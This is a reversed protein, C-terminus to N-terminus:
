KRYFFVGLTKPGCHCSVTCGAIGEYVNEFPALELIKEKVESIFEDEFGHSHTIFICSYDIDDRGSLREELYKMISKEVTGRYKKGVGMKGDKLEICPHLSLLNAGLAAVSSCRGGRRLYELTDIVFSGEILEKKRDLEAKIDQPMMGAEAMEAGDMVLLGIGDSLSRSDITYVGDFDSGAIDYEKLYKSFVEHYEAINVAATSCTGKTEEVQRLLEKSDIDVGDKHETGNVMVGLPVIGINYRDVIEQPLDCTSDASIKIKMTCDEVKILDVNLQYLTSQVM